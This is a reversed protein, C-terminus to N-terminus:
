RATLKIAQVHWCLFRGSSVNHHRNLPLFEGGTSTVNTGGFVVVRIGLVVPRLDTASSM